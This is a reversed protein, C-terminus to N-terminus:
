GCNHGKKYLELHNQSLQNYTILKWTTRLPELHYEICGQRKPVKRLDIGGLFAVEVPRCFRTASSFRGLYCPITIITSTTCSTYNTYNNTYIYIDNVIVHLSSSVISVIMISHFPATIFDYSNSMNQSLHITVFVMINQSYHLVYTM